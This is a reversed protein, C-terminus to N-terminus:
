GQGRLPKVLSELGEIRLELALAMLYGLRGAPFERQRFWLLYEEPIDIIVRGKFRGFPMETNALDILDQQEFMTSKGYGIDFIVAVGLPHGALNMM